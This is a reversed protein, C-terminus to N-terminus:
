RRPRHKDEIVGYHFALPMGVFVLAWVSFGVVAIATLHAYVRVGWSNIDDGEEIPARARCAYFSSLIPAPSRSLALRRLM